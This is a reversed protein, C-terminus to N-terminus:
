VLTWGVSGNAIIKESKSVSIATVQKPRKKIELSVRKTLIFKRCVSFFPGRSSFLHGKSFLQLSPFLFCMMSAAFFCLFWLEISQEGGRRFGNLLAEKSAFSYM